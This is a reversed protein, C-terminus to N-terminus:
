DEVYEQRGDELLIQIGKQVMFPFMVIAGLPDGWRFDMGTNLLMAILLVMSLYSNGFTFISASKLVQSRLEVALTKMYSGAIPIALMSLAAVVVGLIGREPRPGFWLRSGGAYLALCAAAVYGWGIISSRGSDRGTELSKRITAALRLAGCASVVADLGFALLAPSGTFYWLTLGACFQFFHIGTTLFALRRAHRIWTERDESM